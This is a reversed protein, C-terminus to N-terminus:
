FSHTYVEDTLIVDYELDEEDGFDERSFGIGTVIQHRGSKELKFYISDITRTNSDYIRTLQASRSTFWQGLVIDGGSQYSILLGTCRKLAKCMSITRIGALPAVSLFLGADPGAISPVNCIQYQPILLPCETSSGNSIAGIRIIKPHFSDEYYFGVICGKSKLRIWKYEEQLIL